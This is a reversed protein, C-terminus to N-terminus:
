HTQEVRARAAPDAGSAAALADAAIRNGAASWHGDCTLYYRGTRPEIAPMWKMLDVVKVDHERGFRDLADVLRHDGSSAARVFDNPRPIVAITVEREGALAKIKAFSWLVASLQEATYDLYGSYDSARYFQLGIYRYLVLSWSNRRLWNGVEGSGAGVPVSRADAYGEPPKPAPYFARYAGAGDAQYYPRHREDFDPRFRRWYDADNDTFDNDPLFLILVRDHSFKTALQEYLIQYQLPGVDNEVGFNLFERHFRAELLDSVREEAEVGWGEAFSDGLVVTRDAGEDVSRERDRAGYSNSQLSVSFCRSNQREAQNPSHWAGWAERETLWGPGPAAAPRMYGPVWGIDAVYHLYVFSGIEASLTLSLLLLALSGLRAAM